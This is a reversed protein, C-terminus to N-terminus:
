ESMKPDPEDGERKPAADVFAQFIKKISERCQAATLYKYIHAEDVHPRKEGDDNLCDIDANILTILIFATNKYLKRQDRLVDALDTISIDFHDQIEETAQISFYLGYKKGGIVIEVSKPRLDSM